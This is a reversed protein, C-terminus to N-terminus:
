GGGATQGHHPPNGGLKAARRKRSAEKEQALEEQVKPYCENCIGHSFAAESHEHVYKDLGGWAGKDDRVKHCYSCIPIIGRLTKIDDLAAQLKASQRRVTQVLRYFRVAIGLVLVTVIVLGFFATFIWRYNPVPNRIFLFGDLPVMKPLMGMQLYTELIRNWRGPNTYGLEVLAPQILRTAEQAELLLHERSHRQTYKAIILDVTEEPHELAYSWGKLSADLFDRVRDHAANERKRSTFLTDGYFDIGGSRPDLVTFRLGRAALKFPEDTSYGSMADVRGSVLDDPSFTPPVIQLDTPSLGEAELYAYLEAEEPHAMVRKGRLDHVTRIGSQELAILILPSHQFIPALEVVPKGQGFALVLESSGVGFEADGDMVVDVTDKAPNVELLEVDYHADRYYGKEIAMYYGAFQFQHKWKLQLRVKELPEAASLGAGFVALVLMVVSVIRSLPRSLFLLPM